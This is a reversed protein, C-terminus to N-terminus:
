RGGTRIGYAIERLAQDWQEHTTLAPPTKGDYHTAIAKAVVTIAPVWAARTPGDKGTIAQTRERLVPEIAARTAALKGAKLEAATSEYAKAIGAAAARRPEAAIRAVEAAALQAFGYVNTPADPGDPIPLPEPQPQPGPEGVEIVTGGYAEPEFGHFSVFYAGAPLDQLLQFPEGDETRAAIKIIAADKAAPDFIVYRVDWAIRKWVVPSGDEGEVAPVKIVASDGPRKTGEVALEIKIPSCIASAALLLLLAAASRLREM